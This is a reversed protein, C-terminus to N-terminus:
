PRSADSKVPIDPPADETGAETVYLTGLIKQSPHSVFVLLSKKANVDEFITAQIQQDETAKFENLLRDIEGAVRQSYNTKKNRLSAARIRYTRSLEDKSVLDNADHRQLSGTEIGIRIENLYVHGSMSNLLDVTQM